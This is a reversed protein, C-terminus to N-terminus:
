CCTALVDAAADVITAVDNDSLAASLFMAEFQSCPLYVGRDALGWFFKAFRATDCKEATAWDVVPTGSFFFTMM